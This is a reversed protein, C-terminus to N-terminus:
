SRSLLSLFVYAVTPHVFNLRAVLPSPISYALTRITSAGTVTNVFTGFETNLLENARAVSLSVAMWDGAPSSSKPALGYAGLWDIVSTTTEQEPRVLEEVKKKRVSLM